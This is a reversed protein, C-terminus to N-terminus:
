SSPLLWREWTGDSGTEVKYSELDRVPLRALADEAAATLKPLFWPLMERSTRGQRWWRTGRRRAETRREAHRQRRNERARLTGTDGRSPGAARRVTRPRPLAADAHLPRPRIGEAAALRARRRRDARREDLLGTSAGTAAPSHTRVDGSGRRHRGPAAAGHRTAVVEQRRGPPRGALAVTESRCPRSHWRRWVGGRRRGPGSGFREDAQACANSRRSAVPQLSRGLRVPGGCPRCM